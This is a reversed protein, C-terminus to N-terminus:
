EDEDEARGRSRVRHADRMVRVPGPRTGTRRDIPTNVKPHQRHPQLVRAQRRSTVGPEAQVSIENALPMEKRPAGVMYGRNGRTPTPAPAPAPAPLEALPPPAVAASRNPRPLSGGLRGGRAKRKALFDSLRTSFPPAIVVAPDVTPINHSPPTRVTGQANESTGHAATSVNRTRASIM